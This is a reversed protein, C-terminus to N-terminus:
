RVVQTYENYWVWRYILAQNGSSGEVSGNWDAQPLNLDGDINSCKTSKRSYGNRATLREIVRMDKCPARYIGIIEWAYRAVVDKVEVASM